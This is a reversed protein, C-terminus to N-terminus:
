PIWCLYSALFMRLCLFDVQTKLDLCFNIVFHLVCFNHLMFNFSRAAVYLSLKEEEFVHEWFMLLHHLIWQHLDFCGLVWVCCIHM